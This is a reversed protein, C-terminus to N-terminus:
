AINIPTRAVAFWHPRGEQGYGPSYQPVEEYHELWVVTELDPIMRTPFLAFRKRTRQDGERPRFELPSRYRM